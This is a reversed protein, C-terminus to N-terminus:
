GRPLMRELRRDHGAALLALAGIIPAAALVLLRLDTSGTADKVARLRDSGAM